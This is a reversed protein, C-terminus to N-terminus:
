CQCDQILQCEETPDEGHPHFRKLSEVANTGHPEEVAPIRPRPCTIRSINQSLYPLCLLMSRAYGNSTQVRELIPTTITIAALTTIIKTRQCTYLEGRSPRMPHEVRLCPLSRPVVVYDIEADPDRFDNAQAVYSIAIASVVARM